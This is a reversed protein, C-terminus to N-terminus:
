VIAAEAAFPPLASTEQLIEALSITTMCNKHRPHHAAGSDTAPAIAPYALSFGSYLVETGGGGCGGGITEDGQTEKTENM